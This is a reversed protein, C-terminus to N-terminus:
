INAAGLQHGNNSPSAEPTFGLFGKESFVEWQMASM